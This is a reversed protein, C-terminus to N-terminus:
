DQNVFILKDTAFGLQKAKEILAELTSKPLHRTRSLIWFYSRDPGAVMSYAYDKKDLEIINYGGYFPGFFSVKLRGKDPQEVFYAKGEAQEWEGDVHNWGKNLVNVGGDERLTYTASINNLGKEFRHDLRAIEYWTGMYRNIEFGDIATVGDPIGTCSSLLTAILVLLNKM